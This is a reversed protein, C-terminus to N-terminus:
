QFLLLRFIARLLLLNQLFRPFYSVFGVRGVRGPFPLAAVRFIKIRHISELKM